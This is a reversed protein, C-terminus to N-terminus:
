QLNPMAVAIPQRKDTEKDNGTAAPVISM